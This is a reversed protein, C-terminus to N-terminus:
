IERHCHLLSAVHCGVGLTQVSAFGDKRFSNPQEVLVAVRVGPQLIDTRPQAGCLRRDAIVEFALIPKKKLDIIARKGEGFIRQLSSILFVATSSSDDRQYPSVRACMGASQCAKRRRQGQNCIQRRGFAARFGLESGTVACQKPRAPM